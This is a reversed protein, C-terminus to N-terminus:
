PYRDEREAAPTMHVDLAVIFVRPGDPGNGHSSVICYANSSAPIHLQHEQIEASSALRFQPNSFDLDADWGILNTIGEFRMRVADPTCRQCCDGLWLQLTDGTQAELHLDGFRGNVAEFPPWRTDPPQRQRMPRLARVAFDPAGKDFEVFVAEGVAFDAVADM